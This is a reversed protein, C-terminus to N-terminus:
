ELDRATKINQIWYRMLPVTFNVKGEEISIVDHQLLSELCRQGNEATLQAERFLSEVKVAQGARALVELVATQGAPESKAVQQWVGTFYYSGQEYFDASQVVTDVDAPLLRPEHPLGEEFVQQNYRRVLSHGILQTLYPQGHVLQYVYQVTERTIDLPFDEVPNALLQATEAPTLFSVRVANVSAFLPSWYDATMEQLTHLGALALILWQESHIVGRLYQLLEAEVRGDDIAQEIVEFEDITLIVRRTGIAHKVQRLFRNFVHTWNEDYEDFDPEELPINNTEHTLADTVADYIALAFNALLEGTHLIRGARHMTFPAVITNVGFRRGMNQLISTKGMRRHGYLVVSDVGMTSDSGWLDELRKFIDERGVFLAGQVPNGVIFPNPVPESIAQEGIKGAALAFVDRWKQATDKVVPRIEEQGISDVDEILKTVKALARGVAASRNLKSISAEVVQAELAVERLRELLIMEESTNTNLRSLWSMEDAWRAIEALEDSSRARELNVTYTVANLQETRRMLDARQQRLGEVFRANEIAQAASNSLARGMALDEATFIGNQKNVVELVGILENNIRLPMAMLSRTHFNIEDDIDAIFREDLSTDQIVVTENQAAVWGVAGHGLAVKVGILPPKKTSHIVAQCVMYDRDGSWLWLSCGETGLLEITAGMLREMVENLNLVSVLEYSVKNLLEQARSSDQVAQQMRFVNQELTRQRQIKLVLAPLLSLYRGDQDKLFYDAAGATLAEAASSEKGEAVLAVLTATPFDATFQKVVDFGVATDILLAEYPWAAAMAEAEEQTHAIDVQHGVKYLKNRIQEATNPDPLLALLTLSVSDDM